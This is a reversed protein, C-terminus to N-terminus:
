DDLSLPIALALAATTLDLAIAVVLAAVATGHVGEGVTILGLITFALLGAAALQAAWGVFVVTSSYPPETDPQGQPDFAVLLAIAMALLMAGAVLPVVGSVGVGSNDVFEEVQFTVGFRTFLDWGTLTHDDYTTIWPLMVVGVALLGAAAELAVSLVHRRRGHKSWPSHGTPEDREVRNM